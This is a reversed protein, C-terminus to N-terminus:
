IVKEGGSLTTHLDAATTDDEGRLLWEGEEDASKAVVAEDDAGLDVKNSAGTPHKDNNVGFAGFSAALLSGIANVPSLALSMKPDIGAANPRLRREEM